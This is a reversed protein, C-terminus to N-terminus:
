STARIQWTVVALAMVSVFYAAIPWADQMDKKFVTWCVGFATGIVVAMVFLSTVIISPDPTEVFRLGYGTNFELSSPHLASFKLPKDKKKPLQSLYFSSSQMSPTCESLLLHVMHDAAIPPVMELPPPPAFDYHDTTPPVVDAV